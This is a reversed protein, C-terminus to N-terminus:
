PLSLVPRLPHPRQSIGVLLPQDPGRELGAYKRSNAPGGIFGATDLASEFVSRLEDRLERHTTILDLFPIKATNM